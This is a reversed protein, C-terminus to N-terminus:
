IMTGVSDLLSIMHNMVGGSLWGGVLAVAGLTLVIIVPFLVMKAPLLQESPVGLMFDLMASLQLCSIVVGAIMVLLSLWPSLLSFLMVLLSSALTPMTTVAVMGLALPWSFPNKKILCVYCLVVAVPIAIALLQCLVAIGGAAPGVKGAIYGAAQNLSSSNGALSVGMIASLLSFLVRVVGRMLAMGGLFVEVLVIGVVVPATIVDQNQYLRNLAQGPNRFTEVFLRAMDKLMTELIGPQKPQQGIGYQQATAQAPYYQQPMSQMPQQPMPQQVPQQPPYANMGNNPYVDQVPQQYYSQQPAFGQQYGQQYMPQFTQQDNQQPAYGGMLQTNCRPCYMTGPAVAVGCYPCNM